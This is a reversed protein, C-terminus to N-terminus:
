LIQAVLAQYSCALSLDCPSHCGVRWAADVDEEDAEAVDIHGGGQALVWERMTWSVLVPREGMVSPTERLTAEEWVKM